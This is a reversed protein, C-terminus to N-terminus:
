LVILFKLYIIRAKECKFWDEHTKVLDIWTATELVNYNIEIEFGSDM